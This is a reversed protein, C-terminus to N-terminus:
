IGNDSLMLAQIGYLIIWNEMFLTVISAMTKRSTSLARTVKSYLDTKVLILANGNLPKWFPKTHGNRRLGIPREWSIITPSDANISECIKPANAAFGATMYLDNAMHIEEWMTTSVDKVWIDLWVHTFRTICLVDEYHRLFLKANCWTHTCYVDFDMGTM